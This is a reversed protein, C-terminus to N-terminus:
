RNSKTPVAIGIGSNVLLLYAFHFSATLPVPYPFGKSQLGMTALGELQGSVRKKDFLDAIDDPQVQCRRFAGQHEADILLALDLGQVAALGQEGQTRALHLPAAVVVLAM